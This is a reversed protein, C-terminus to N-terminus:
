GLLYKSEFDRLNATMESDRSLLASSASSKDMISENLDSVEKQIKKEM